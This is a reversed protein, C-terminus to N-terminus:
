GNLPVVPQTVEKWKKEQEPSLENTSAKVSARSKAWDADVAKATRESMALGSFKDIAAKAEPPLSNYKQKNMFMMATSAGLPENLHHSTVENIKFIRMGTFPMLAGEAIGRSIAQYTDPPTFTVPVAGLLEVIKSTAVNSTVLKM